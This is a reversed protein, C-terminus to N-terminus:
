CQTLGGGCLARNGAALPTSPTTLKLISVTICFRVPGIDCLTGAAVLLTFCVRSNCCNGAQLFNTELSFHVNARWGRLPLFFSRNEWSVSQRFLIAM